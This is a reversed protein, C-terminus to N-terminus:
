RCYCRSGLRLLDGLWGLFAPLAPGGLGLEDRVADAAATDVNDYGYRGAAIRYAADGPLARMMAFTAAGILVAVMLAQIARTMLTNM